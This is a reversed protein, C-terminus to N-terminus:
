DEKVTYLKQGKIREVKDEEMLFIRVEIGRETEVLLLM